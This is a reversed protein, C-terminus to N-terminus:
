NGLIHFIGFVSMLRWSWSFKRWIRKGKFRVRQVDGLKEIILMLAEKNNGMRSLVFVMEPILQRKDCINYAQGYHIFAILTPNHLV